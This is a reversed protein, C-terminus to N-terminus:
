EEVSWEETYEVNKIAEVILDKSVIELFDKKIENNEEGDTWFKYEKKCEPHKEVAKEIDNVTIDQNNKKEIILSMISKFDPANISVKVAGNNGKELIEYESAYNECYRKVADSDDGKNYRRCSLLMVLSLSILVLVQFKRKGM